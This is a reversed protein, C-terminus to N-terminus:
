QFFSLINTILVLMKLKEERNKVILSCSFRKFSFFSLFFYGDVKVM